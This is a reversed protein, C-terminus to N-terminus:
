FQTALAEGAIAGDVKKNKNKHPCNTPLHGHEHCHFFKVKSLDMNKGKPMSKSHFKNWKGKRAKDAM